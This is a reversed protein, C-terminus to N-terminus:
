PVCYLFLKQFVQIVNLPSYSVGGGRYSSPPLHPWPEFGVLQMHLKGILFSNELQVDIKPCGKQFMKFNSFPSVNQSLPLTHSLSTNAYTIITETHVALHGLKEKKSLYPSWAEIKRQNCHENNHNLITLCTTHTNHM